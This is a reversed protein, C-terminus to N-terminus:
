AEESKTVEEKEATPIVDFHLEGNSRFVMTLDFKYIQVLRFLLELMRITEESFGGKLM